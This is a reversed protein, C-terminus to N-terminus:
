GKIGRTQQRLVLDEITVRAQNIVEAQNVDNGTWHQPTEKDVYIGDVRTSATTANAMDQRILPMICARGATSQFHNVFASKRAFTLGCGWQQGHLLDGRCTFRKTGHLNEHSKRDNNRAFAKGCVTCVFPREGTHTRLHSRLNHQRTFQKSCLTCQFTAPFKQTPNSPLAPLDPFEPDESYIGHSELMHKDLDDKSLCGFTATPCGDFACTYPREHRDVHRDRTEPCEFGDYFHRCCIRPCKFWKDGYYLQLATKTELTPMEKIMAELHSRAHQTIDPLNLINDHHNSSEELLLQKRSWVVSQALRDYCDFSQLLQLKNHMTKSIASPPVEHSYHNDLFQEVTEELEAMAAESTQSDSLWSMLHPVWCAVAYEYFSYRGSKLSIKTSESATTFCFEPFNLYALSLLCLEFEVESTQITGETVLFNRVTGHVPEVTQDAHMEIFSACLDKSTDVLRRNEENISENELDISIAAQIEFWRLPRKSLCIWSLLKKTVNRREKVQDGMLRCFIRRYVEQLKSPFADARWERLLCDRSPQQYLEELVCKSFIFIGQSRATVIETLNLGDEQLSGFRQEIQIQWHRCFTAIDLKTRDPTMTITPLISLDKRAAGDDQSIFLCRIEDQKARPLSDVASTFWGCIERREDRGCEDIGDLIILTKRSKLSTQLLEQALKSSSLIAQGSSTSMKEEFHLLLSDNQSLAQSLLARALPLFSDKEPDRYRFYFYLVSIDQLKRAEEIITSAMVSKGQHHKILIASPIPPESLSEGAGPKGNVWLLPTSCYLPDFWQQFRADHLMWRCSEPNSSRAKVHREHVAEVDPSALWQFVATRRRRAEAERSDRFHTQSSIRLNQVTEFEVLSARGEILQKHRRLNDKLLSIESTFGKWNSKFLQKWLKQRFYRLAIVHFSLIDEYIMVLLSRMHAHGSFLDKYSALLPIQEGIQQYTDLLSDFADSFNSATMLLYKLPGWVFALMDSSNVFIEIVKGYETMTKLFPDIRKMFVLRRTKEQREQVTRLTIQVDNLSSFQFDRLEDGTLAAQSKFRQVAQQFEADM